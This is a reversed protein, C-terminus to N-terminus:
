RLTKNESSDKEVVVKKFVLLYNNAAEHLYKASFTLGNEAALNIMEGIERLGLRPDQGKLKIDFNRNGESTYVGDLNAADRINYPGYFLCLGDVKLATRAQKFLSKTSEWPICHVVNSAYFIDYQNSQSNESDIDFEVPRKLRNEPITSSKLKEIIGAHYFPVDSTQWTV